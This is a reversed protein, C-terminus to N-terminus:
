ISVPLAVSDCGAHTHPNFCCPLVPKLFPPTVGQTPTHISVFDSCVIYLINSDCGAHTHPNFSVANDAKCLNLHWVRRPHTSQFLSVPLSLILFPHWVRRPHTSQFSLTNQLASCPLTVGQTPTHISVLCRWGNRWKSKTVGQTPTHISVFICIRRLFYFLTVGQTPTHISVHYHHYNARLYLWVRRPHTSQFMESASKLSPM